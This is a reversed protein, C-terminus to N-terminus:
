YSYNQEEVLMFNAIEAGVFIICFFHRTVTHNRPIVRAFEEQQLPIEHGTGVTAVYLSTIVIM